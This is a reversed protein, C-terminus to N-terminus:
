TLRPSAAHAISRGLPYWSCLFYSTVGWGGCNGGRCIGMERREGRAQGFWGLRRPSERALFGRRERRRPWRWGAAGVNVREGRQAYARATRARCGGCLAAPIASKTVWGRGQEEAQRMSHCRRLSRRFHKGAAADVSGARRTRSAVCPLRGAAALTELLFHCLVRCCLSAGCSFPTGMRTRAFPNTTRDGNQLKVFVPAAAARACEGRVCAAACYGCV